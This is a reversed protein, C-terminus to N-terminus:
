EVRTGQFYYRLIQDYKFGANAMGKAGEQSMGVGHGWGRGNLTYTTPSAPLTKKRGSADVITVRGNASSISKVGSSTAVKRDGLRTKQVAMDKTAASVDADTTVEYWQSNLGFVTRCGDRIYTRQNKTGKVLLKTVRGTESRETVCVDVIDGIDTGWEKLMKKIDSTTLTEEWYYNWSKASEYKDEVSKLYPYSVGWVNSADETKGGSSAFYFVKAPADGYMLVKGRTDDVAKNTSAAEGSFGKYVQDSTTTCLDFEFDSHKGMNNLTYTRAAVAQAKLAEPKSDSEIESPVVGYLYQELPLVNILTLDSQPFRRVELEGRYSRNNLAFVCPNGGSKPRIRFVGNTGDYMFVPNGAPSFVAIRTQSPKVVAAINVGLSKEVLNTVYFQATEQSEFFGTWVQWGDSYVPYAVIGKQALAQIQLSVADIDSFSGYLSVHFPGLKEGAPIKNDSQKYEVVSSGNKVFYSDKRITLNKDTPEEFLQLFSNNKFVGLQIGSKSGVNFGAPATDKYYLGIRVTEPLRIAAYGTNSSLVTTFLL